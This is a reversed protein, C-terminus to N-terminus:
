EVYEVDEAFYTIPIDAGQGVKYFLETKDILLGEIINGSKLKLKISKAGGGIFERKKIGSKDEEFFAMKNSSGIVLSKDVLEAKYESIYLIWDIADKTEKYPLVHADDYVFQKRNKFGSKDMSAFMEKANKGFPAATQDRRGNVFAMPLGVSSINKLENLGDTATDKNAGITFVGKFLNGGWAALRLAKKSGSSFGGILIPKNGLVGRIHLRRITDLVYLYSSIESNSDRRLEIAALMFGMEDAMRKYDDIVRLDGSLHHPMVFVLPWTRSDTFGKPFYIGVKAKKAVKGQMEETLNSNLLVLTNLGVNEVELEGAYAAYPIFFMLLIFFIKTIM